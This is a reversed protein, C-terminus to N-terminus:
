KNKTVVYILIVNYVIGYYGNLAIKWMPTNFDLNYFKIFQTLCLFFTAPLFISSLQNRDDKFNLMLATVCLISTYVFVLCLPVHYIPLPPKIETTLNYYASVTILFLIPILLQKWTFYKAKVFLDSLVLIYVPLLWTYTLYWKNEIQGAFYFRDFLIFAEGIASVLLFNFYTRNGRLSVVLVTVGLLTPILEYLGIM